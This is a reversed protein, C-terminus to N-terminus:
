HKQYFIVRFGNPGPSKLPAMQNLAEEVEEKTYKQILKANMEENIKPQIM